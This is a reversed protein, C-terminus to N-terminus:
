RAPAPCADSLSSNLGEQEVKFKLHAKGHDHYITFIYIRDYDSNPWPPVQSPDDGYNTLIQQAFQNLLEHEWSVYVVSNSYSPATVESQLRGIEKFGIQANVPMGLAIATPEITILPRVYSYLTQSRDSVQMAPDPAYIAAPRGYRPILIGPLALARNLGRCTLQGLGAQPKEGHRIAIITEQARLLPQGFLIGFLIPLIIRYLRNNHQM